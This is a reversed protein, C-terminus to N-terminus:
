FSVTVKYLFGAGHLMTTMVMSRCVFGICTFKMDSWVSIRLTTTAPNSSHFRWNQQQLIQCTFSNWEARARSLTWVYLLYAEKELNWLIWSQPHNWADRTCQMVLLATSELCTAAIFLSILIYNMREMPVSQFPCSLELGYHLFLLFHGLISMSVHQNALIRRSSCLVKLEFRVNVDFNNADVCCAAFLLQTVRKRM